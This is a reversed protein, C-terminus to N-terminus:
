TLIKNRKEKSIGRVCLSKVWIMMANFPSHFSFFFILLLSYFSVSQSTCSTNLKSFMKSNRRRMTHYNWLFFFIYIHSEFLFLGDIFFTKKIWYYDDAKHINKFTLIPFMNKKNLVRPSSFFIPVHM